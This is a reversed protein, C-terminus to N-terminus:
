REEVADRSSLLGDDDVFRAGRAVAIVHVAEPVVPSERQDVRASKFRRGLLADQHLHALLRIQGNFLGVDDDKQHVAAVAERGRVHLDGPLQAAAALLDKVGGVLHVARAMFFQKGFVIAQADVRQIGEGGLM